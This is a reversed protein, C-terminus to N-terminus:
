KASATLVLKHAMQASCCAFYAQNRGWGLSGM